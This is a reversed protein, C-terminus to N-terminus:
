HIDRSEENKLEAKHSFDNKVATLIDKQHEKVSESGLPELRKSIPPLDANVLKNNRRVGTNVRKKSQLVEDRRREKEEQLIRNELEDYFDEKQKVKKKVKDIEKKEQLWDNYSKTKQKSEVVDNKDSTRDKAFSSSHEREKMRADADTRSSTTKPKKLRTKKMRINREMEELADKVIAETFLRVSTYGEPCLDDNLYVQRFKDFSQNNNKPQRKVPSTSPRNSKSAAMIDQCSTAPKIKRARTRTREQEMTNQSYKLNKPPTAKEKEKNSFPKLKHKNERLEQKKRNIWEQLKDVKYQEQSASIKQEKRRIKRERREKRRKEKESKNKRELWERLAPNATDKLSADLHHEEEIKAMTETEKAKPEKRVITKKEMSSRKTLIKTDDNFLNRLVPFNSRRYISNKCCNCFCVDTSRKLKKKKRKRPSSLVLAKEPTEQEDSISKSKKDTHTTKDSHDLEDLIARYNDHELVFSVKKEGKNLDNGEFESNEDKFTVRAPSSNETDTTENESKIPKSKEGHESETDTVYHNESEESSSQEDDLQKKNKVIDSANDDSDSEESTLESKDGLDNPKTETTKLENENEEETMSEPLCVENNTNNDANFNKKGELNDDKPSVFFDEDEKRKNEVDDLIDSFLAFDLDIKNRSM